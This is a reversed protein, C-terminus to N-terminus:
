VGNTGCAKAYPDILEASWTGNILIQFTYYQNKINHEITIEWVGNAAKQMNATRDCVGGLDSAYLNIRAAKATPAWIKFKSAKPSYTLGLDNGKYIPYNGTQDQAFAFTAILLLLFLLINQM